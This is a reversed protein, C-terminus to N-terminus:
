FNKDKRQTNIDSMNASFHHNESCKQTPIIEEQPIAVM